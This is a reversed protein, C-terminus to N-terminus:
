LGYLAKANDGLIKNAVEPSVTGMKRFTQLAYIESSTDSHGYDTGMVLNDETGYSLIYPLDENTQCAVYIRNDKLWNEPVPRGTREYRRVLDCIVYPVWQAGLEIFGYRLGPFRETVRHFAVAHFAGVGILKFRSFGPDGSFLDITAPAGNGTHVCIAMDLENAEEYLPFFYPDNLSKNGCEIGRVFVACAGNRKADKLEPLARDMTMLPLAAAWRLRGKSEAWIDALWRNYSTTLAMEVEPKTTIPQILLTPYLVQVDTGLEDMHQVRAGVNELLRSSEPLTVKDGQGGRTIAPPQAVGWQRGDVLWFQREEGVPSAQIVRIPRYQKDAEAMYEWTQDTEIVHADSDITLM